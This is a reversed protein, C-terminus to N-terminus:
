RIGTDYPVDLWTEADQAVTFPLPGPTGMFGEVPSAEVSYDGPPLVIRFLGSGDTTFRTTDVGGADRVVLEAGGVMRPACAPDGPREVPCTPGGTAWGGVGTSTSAARLGALVDEVLVSGGEAIFTTAGDQAVDWTWTHRDICGAPCDGWGVEVTVRWGAPPSGADLAEAQWWSGQGILDPDQKEIGDFLPSRARIAAMATDASDVGTAPGPTSASGSCAAVLLAVLLLLLMCAPRNTPMDRRNTPM